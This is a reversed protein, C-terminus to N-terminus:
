LVYMSLGCHWLSLNHWFHISILTKLQCSCFPSLISSFFVDNMNGAPPLSFVSISFPMSLPEIGSSLRSITISKFTFRSHRMTTIATKSTRSSPTANPADIITGVGLVMEPCEKAAYKILEAFVEQAFDGRNTFEFARVGGDYCAKLVKKAIEVDSHYFVPVMGTSSMANISQLINFRAM